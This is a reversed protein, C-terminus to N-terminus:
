FGFNDEWFQTLPEELDYISKHPMNFDFEYELAHILEHVFTKFREKPTQKQLIWITHTAPDCLGLINPPHDPVRQCFRVRWRNDGVDLFKPFDRQRRM